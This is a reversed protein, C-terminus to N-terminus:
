KSMESLADLVRADSSVGIVDTEGLDLQALTKGLASEIDPFQKQNNFLYQM